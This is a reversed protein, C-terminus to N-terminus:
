SLSNASKTQIDFAQNDQSCEEHKKKKTTETAMAEFELGCHTSKQM